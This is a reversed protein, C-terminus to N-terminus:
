HLGIVERKAMENKNVIAMIKMVSAVRRGIDVVDRNLIHKTPTLRQDSVVGLMLYNIHENYMTEVPREGDDIVEIGPQLIVLSQFYRNCVEICRKLYANVAVTQEIELTERQIDALLYAMFDIPTRDTIFIRKANVYRRESEKLIAEQIMIRTSFSYNDRPTLGLSNYVERAVSGIYEVGTSQAIAQAITTKGTGSAGSIGIGM